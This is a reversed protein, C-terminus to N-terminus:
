SWREENRGKRLGLVQSLAVRTMDMPLLIAAGPDLRILRAIEKPVRGPHKALNRITHFGLQRRYYIVEADNLRKSEPSLNVVRGILRHALVQDVRIAMCKPNDWGFNGFYMNVGSGCEVCNDLDFGIRSASAALMSFFLVDEGASKLTTNFRLRAALDRKYVVTSAQTPFEKVILGVVRDAPIEVVGTKQQSSAIIRGTEPACHSIYSSHHGARRNDTFYLDFGSDLAQIARSLHDAPWIDDSDLFAVLTTSQDAEDLARNRAAAVGGNEQRVVKLHLPDEFDLGRVEDQAPCPSADDVVIVEVAWDSPISRQSRISYLARALIGPERQFFPVVVSLKHM